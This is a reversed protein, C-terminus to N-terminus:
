TNVQPESIVIAGGAVRCTGADGITVKLLCPQGMSFGQKISFSAGAAYLAVERLYVGFAAAASGTAPDEYVGGYAFPNRSQWVEDSERAVLQVTPWMNVRCIDQLAGFDYRMNQLTQTDKLVLIPHTNGANALKPAMEPQLDFVQWDFIRLLEDLVNQDFEMIWGPRSELEAKYDSGDSSVTVSVLGTNTIFEYTGQGQAHGLAVGAAITAHGCFDVELEPAFFRIRIQNGSKSTLFATESYGISKAVEQMEQDSMNEADLVVGAPNGGRGEFPFAALRLVDARM